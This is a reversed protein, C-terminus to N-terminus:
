RRQREMIDAELQNERRLSKELRKSLMGNEEVIERVKSAADQFVM